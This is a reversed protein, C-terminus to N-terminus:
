SQVTQGIFKADRNLKREMMTAIGHARTKALDARPGAFREDITATWLKLWREFHQFELAKQAHMDQHPLFANGTYNRAGLLLTEWFAYMKPLHSPLDIQAIETFHPGILDDKIARAYFADVLQKIDATNEIDTM